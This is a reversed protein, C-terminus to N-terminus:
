LKYIKGNASVNPEKSNVPVKGQNFNKVWVAVSGQLIGFTQAAERYTMGDEVVKKPLFEWRNKKAFSKLHKSQVARRLDGNEEKLHRVEETRADRKTDITLGNKGADLFGKSWKYYTVSAM